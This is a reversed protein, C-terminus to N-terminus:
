LKSLLIALFRKSSSLRETVSNMSLIIRKADSNLPMALLLWWLWSPGDKETRQNADPIPGVAKVICGQQEIPLKNFWQVMMKYVEYNLETYDTENLDDELWLVKACNYGDRLSRELVEFRRSGVTHVISRGDPLFNVDNIYLMTGVSSFGHEPDQLCMGFQRSGSELCRRIM